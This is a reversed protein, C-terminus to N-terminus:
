VLNALESVTVFRVGYTAELWDRNGSDLVSSSGSSKGQDDTCFLDNRYGIHAAVSDGDAWESVARKVANVEHVDKARNLSEFWPEDFWIKPAGPMGASKLLVDLAAHEEEQKREIEARDRAAFTRGLDEIVARGVGRSEIARAASMTGDLRESLELEDPAFFSGDKDEIRIWGIRPVRLARMGIKLAAQVRALHEQHLPRRNQKPQIEVRIVEGGPDEVGHRIQTEVRTGGLVQIRDKNEIGELTVITESFYGKIKGSTLAAQVKYFDMQQSDKPHREPRSVRDLSNTDFTIKM